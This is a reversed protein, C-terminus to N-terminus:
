GAAWNGHQMHQLGALLLHVSCRPLLPQIQRARRSGALKALLAALLLWEVLEELAFDVEVPEMRVAPTMGMYQLHRAWAALVREMVQTCM